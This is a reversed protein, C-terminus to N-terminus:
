VAQGAALKCFVSGLVGGAPDATVHVEVPTSRSPGYLDVVLGLLDLHLPGLVLDLVKCSPASAQAADATVVPLQARLRIAHMPRRRLARNLTAATARARAVKALKVRRSLQCFLRGLSQSRRGTIHLNIASTTLDLGLLQLHLQQLNLTLVNCAHVTSVAFRVRQHSAEGSLRASETGLATLGSRNVAVREIRVDATLVRPGLAAASAAPATTAASAGAPLAAAALVAPLALGLRHVLRSPM